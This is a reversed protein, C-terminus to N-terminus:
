DDDDDPNNSDHCQLCSYSSYGSPHCKACSFSRSNHEGGPVRPHSFTASGWSKGVTHCSSCTTGYHNGPARHCSACNTSTPHSFKWSAGTQHCTACTGAAHGSPRGHCNTCTASAGPHKFVATKFPTGPKHCSSCAGGYHKAPKTHCTACNASAGPHKFAARAFTTGVTHCASCSGKYHRAPATHCSSCDSGAPHTFTWTEAPQHCAACPGTDHDAPATHCTACEAGAAPHEFSFDGATHCTECAPAFHEEPTEHCTACDTRAPHAFTWEVGATHCDTCTTSADRPEHKPEHCSVCGTAAMDHCDSCTVTVHGVINAEGAGVEAVRAADKAAQADKDLVGADALADATVRHGVDAHCSVCAKGNRHTEHDLGAVDPTIAGDHCGLCREDPVETSNMPFRPEGTFHAWVEGLATVKHALRKATGADVHCEICAISDHPGAQWASYFPTMEHCSSCFSAEDTAQASAIFAISFITIIGIGWLAAARKHHIASAILSRM